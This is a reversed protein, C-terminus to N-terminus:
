GAVTDVVPAGVTATENTGEQDVIWVLWLQPPLVGPTGTFDFTLAGLDISGASAFTTNWLYSPGPNVPIACSPLAQAGPVDIGCAHLVPVVVLWSPGSVSVTGSLRTDVSANFEITASSGGTCETGGGAAPFCWSAPPTLTWETGTVAIECQSAAGSSTGHEPFPTSWCGGSAGPASRPAFAVLGAGVLIGVTLSVMVGRKWGGVHPSPRTSREM